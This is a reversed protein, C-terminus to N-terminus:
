KSDTMKIEPYLTFFFADGQRKVVHFNRQIEFRQPIEVCPIRLLM